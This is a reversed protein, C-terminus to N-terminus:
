EAALRRPRLQAIDFNLVQRLAGTLRGKIGAFSATKEIQEEDLYLARNLEIQLAHVGTERRAYLHTTFGGAYPANRATAFGQSAFAREVHRTLAATASTGHCDGFVLEPVAPMSPMSHCDIVVACGFRALTQEVLAALATHYPRYLRELRWEAEETPLRARYIEVGDRVVRPIVGLGAHVRPGPTEMPLSLPGAFMDADLEGPARNADVYARPFRAAILPCGFGAVCDFLEDVYADESRRLALASLSSRAIFSEPYTRGSHPSAFVFPLRQEDPRILCFPGAELAALVPDTTM